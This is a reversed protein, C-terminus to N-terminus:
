SGIEVAVTEETDEAAAATQDTVAETAEAPVAEGTMIEVLKQIARQRVLRSRINSRVGSSSRLRRREAEPLNSGRIVENIAQEVERNAIEIQERTAVAGLVLSAKVNAVANDRMETRMVDESKGAAEMAMDLDLRRAEFSSRMDRLMRDLEEEILEPPIEVFSRSTVADVAEQVLQEDAGVQKELLLNENLRAKLEDLTQLDSVTQAFEDDLAPLVKRKVEKVLARVFMTKGALEPNGYNEPLPLTVERIDGRNAGVLERSLGPFLPSGGEDESRLEFDFNEDNLVEQGDVKAAINLTVVDGMEPARVTPELTAMSDQLRHLLEDVEEPTVSVEPKDLHITSYDPLKVEPKVAVTATFTFSEGPHIHGHDDDGFSIEAEDIPTLDKEDIAHRYGWRVAEDTAEHLFFEPGVAREVMARPAKGRRFGPVNVRQVLQKYTREAAQDVEQGSLQITLAVRSEPLQKVEVNM